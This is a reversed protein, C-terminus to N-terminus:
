PIQYERPLKILELSFKSAYPFYKRMPGTTIVNDINFRIADNIRYSETMNSM